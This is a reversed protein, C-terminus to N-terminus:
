DEIIILGACLKKRYERELSYYEDVFIDKLNYELTFVAKNCIRRKLVMSGKTQEFRVYDIWLGINDKGFLTCAEDYLKRATDLEFDSEESEIAIMTLYLKCCPPKLVKLENFIKRTVDMDEFEICWKLYKPRIEMSINEYSINSGEELLTRVMDPRKDGLYRIIMKWLPLSNEKLSRVGEQFVNMLKDLNNLKLHLKLLQIWIHQDDGFCLVADLLIDLQEANIYLANDQCVNIYDSLLEKKISFLVHMHDFLDIIRKCLLTLIGTDIVDHTKELEDKIKLKCSNLLSLEVKFQQLLESETIVKNTIKENVSLRDNNLVTFEDWKLIGYKKLFNSEFDM